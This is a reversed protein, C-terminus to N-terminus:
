MSRFCCSRLLALSVNVVLGCVFDDFLDAGCAALRDAVVIRDLISFGDDLRGNIGKTANINEDVIGTNQSIDAELVHLLRIPVEDVVDVDFSCVLACM